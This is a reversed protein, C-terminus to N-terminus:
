TGEKICNLLYASGITKEVNAVETQIWQNVLAMQQSLTNADISDLSELYSKQEYLKNLTIASDELSKVVVENLKWYLSLYDIVKKEPWSYDGDAYALNILLWIMQAKEAALAVRQSEFYMFTNGDTIYSPLNKVVLMTNDTSQDLNLRSVYTEAIESCSDSINLSKCVQHYNAVADSSPKGNIHLFLYLLAAKDEESFPSHYYPYAM